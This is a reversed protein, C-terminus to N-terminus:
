LTSTNLTKPTVPNPSSSTRASNRVIGFLRQDVQLFGIPRETGLIQQLAKVVRLLREIGRQVQEAQAIQRELLAAQRFCQIPRDAPADLPHGLLQVIKGFLQLAQVAHEGVGIEAIERQELAHGIAPGDLLQERDHRNVPQVLLGRATAHQAVDGAIGVALHILEDVAAVHLARERQM